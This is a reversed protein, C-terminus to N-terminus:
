SLGKYEKPSIGVYRKFQKYFYGTEWYGVSRAIEHVKMQTLRLMEKAKEIRYRNIYETFSENVEKNFLHGLYVPHINYLDGLTKLSLDANYSEDIYNLVQQVVPSKVDRALSDVTISAVEKMIDVLEEISSTMRIKDFHNNYLDSAEAHQIEELQMKFRIMWEMAVDQLLGPSIGEIQQLSGFDEEIRALLEEKNKAMILKVYDNWNMLLSRDANAERDKLDDYRLIKEEPFIMVYEQAKKANIYSQSAGAQVDEVSGISLYLPQYASLGNLLKDNTDQVENEGQEPDDFNYLLVIDGDMDRFPIVRANSKLQNSISEFVENYSHEPRLLSVSVFPKNVVIGLIDAREQFEQPNILNRMWRYMVNDRLIMISHENFTHKEKSINLKEVIMNLTAKFEELNIPKLLYNEIGLTLGEKLYSFENYGSLVIVKLEPQFSRVSRILDLGNMMPMSIDTILIDAPVVKLANLADLGNEAQGVIELGLQAWDVIDYLGEIIFPEDDVIFVKYM